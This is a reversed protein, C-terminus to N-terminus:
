NNTIMVQLENSNNYTDTVHTDSTYSHCITRSTVETVLLFLMYHYLQNLHYTSPNRADCTTPKQYETLYPSLRNTKKM